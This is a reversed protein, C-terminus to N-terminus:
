EAQAAGSTTGWRGHCWVLGAGALAWVALVVLPLPQLVGDVLWMLGGYLLIAVASFKLLRKARAAFPTAATGATKGRKARASRALGVSVIVACLSCAVATVVDAWVIAEGRSCILSLYGAAFWVLWLSWFLLKMKAKM